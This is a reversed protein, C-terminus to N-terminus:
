LQLIYYLIVTVIIIIIAMFGMTVIFGTLATYKIKGKVMGNIMAFMLLFGIISFLAIVSGWTQIVGQNTTQKESSIIVSSPILGNNYAYSYTGLTYTDNETAIFSYGDPTQTTPISNSGKYVTLGSIPTAINIDAPYGNTAINMKIYDNGSDTVSIQTQKQALGQKYYQNFGIIKVGSSRYGDSFATFKFYDISYASPATVLDTQHTFVPYIIGATFMNQWFSYTSNDLNGDNPLWMVGSYGNRWVAGYKNYVYVAQTINDANSLSCWSTPYCGYLNYYATINADILAEAQFESLTTLSQSFHIGPEWGENILSKTFNVHDADTYATDAWITGVQGNALMYNAGNQATSAPQWDLGFATYGSVPYATITDENITQTFNYIHATAYGGTDSIYFEGFVIPTLLNYYPLGRSTNYRYPTILQQRDATITNNQTSDNNQVSFTIENNTIDTAPITITSTQVNGSDNTWLSQIIYHGDDYKQVLLYTVPDYLYLQSNQNSRDISLTMTYNCDVTPYTGIYIQGNQGYQKSYDISRLSNNYYVNTTCTTGTGYAAGFVNKPLSSLQSGQINTLTLTGIKGTYSTTIYGSKTITNSGYANTATLTVDFTGATQYKHVPNQTTSNTGDGFDWLWSTPNNSSTDTFKAIGFIGINTVNSTFSTAPPVLGTEVDFSDTQSTAGVLNSLNTEYNTLTASSTVNLVTYNVGNITQYGAFTVAPEIPTYQRIRFWNLYTGMAMNYASNVGIHIGYNSGAPLTQSQPALISADNEFVSVNGPTYSIKYKNWTGSTDINSGDINVMGGSSYLKAPHSGYSTNNYLQLGIYNGSLASSTSQNATSMGINLVYNSQNTMAYFEIIKNTPDYTTTSRIFEYNTSGSPVNFSVLGPSVAMTASGAQYFNWTASNLTGSNFNEGFMFVQSINSSFGTTKNIFVQTTQGATLNLKTWMANSNPEIWYPQQAAAPIILLFLVFLTLLHVKKIAM